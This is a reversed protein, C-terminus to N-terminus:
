YLHVSAGKADNTVDFLKVTCGPVGQADVKFHVRPKFTQGPQPDLVLAFLPSLTYQPDPKGMAGAPGHYPVKDTYICRFEVAHHGVEVELRYPTAIKEPPVTYSRDVTIQLHPNTWMYGVKDESLKPGEYVQVPATACGLMTLSVFGFAFGSAWTRLSATRLLNLM